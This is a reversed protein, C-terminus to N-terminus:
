VASNYTRQRQASSDLQEASRLEAIQEIEATADAM